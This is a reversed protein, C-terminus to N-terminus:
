TPEEENANIRPKKRKEMREESGCDRQQGQVSMVAAVVPRWNDTWDTTPLGVLPMLKARLEAVAKAAVTRTNTVAETLTLLVTLLLTRAAVVADVSTSSSSRNSAIHTAPSPLREMSLTLVTEVVPLLSSAAAIGSTCNSSCKSLRLIADLLFVFTETIVELAEAGIVQVALQGALSVLLRVLQLGRPEIWLAFLLPSGCVTLNRLWAFVEEALKM